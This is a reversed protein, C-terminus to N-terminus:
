LATPQIKYTSAIQTLICQACHAELTASSSSLVSEYDRISLRLEGSDILSGAAVPMRAHQCLSLGLGRLRIPLIAIDWSADSPQFGDIATFSERSLADM